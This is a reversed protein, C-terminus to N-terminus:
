RDKWRKRWCVKDQLMREVDQVSRLRALRRDREFLGLQCCTVESDPVCHVHEYAFLRVDQADIGLQHFMPCLDLGQRFQLLVELGPWRILFHGFIGLFRYRCTWLSRWLRCLRLTRSGRGLLDQSVLCAIIM